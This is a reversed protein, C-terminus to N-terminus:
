LARRTSIVIGADIPIEITLYGHAPDNVHERYRTHHPDGHSMDAVVLARATLKPELVELVTLYLDNSGDLFLMDIRADLEALTTVAEGVRVEVLDALGADSLNKTGDAAKESLLETTILKGSGLDRLASALHITSYGLSMGFEVIVAPRAAFAVAYLVNGATPTIALSAAAGLAAREIGYLELGLEAERAKVRLKAPQDEAEGIERLRTLVTQVQQSGLTSGV